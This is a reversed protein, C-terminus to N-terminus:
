GPSISNAGDILVELGVQEAIDELAVVEVPLAALQRGNAHQGRQRPGLRLQLRLHADAHVDAKGALWSRWSV